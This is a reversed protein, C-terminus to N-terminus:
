YETELMYERLDEIEMDQLDTMKRERQQKKKMRQKRSELREEANASPRRKKRYTYARRSSRRDESDNSDRM